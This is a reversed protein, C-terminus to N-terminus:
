TFTKSVDTLAFDIQSKSDGKHYTFDGPFEKRKYKLHNIPMIHATKCMDSFLGRGHGNINVDVNSNYHWSTNLANLDGPRSNLDGGMFVTKNLSHCEIVHACLEAFMEAEFYRSSEPKIYTGIFIYEPCLDFSLSIFSKGFTLQIVHNFLYDKIYFALGGHLCTSIKPDSIVTYGELSPLAGFGLCTESVFIVDLLENHLPSQKFNLILPM